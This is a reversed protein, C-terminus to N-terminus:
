EVVPYRLAARLYVVNQSAEADVQRYLVRTYQYAAEVDINKTAAYRLAPRVRVTREDIAQGSFQGAESRNVYYGTSFLGTFEYSGRHALDLTVATREAAGGRGAAVTVDRYFSLNGTDREGKYALAVKAIWGTNNSTDTGRALTFFGPAVEVPRLIDLESRTYRAGVDALISWLEHIERSFGVTVTYNEVDLGTFKSRAYGLNARGKTNPFSQGLDHIFGLGVTHQESDLNAQSKYDLREYGYSLGAGTKESLAYDASVSYIQRDSRNGAVLGTAEIDRDPLGERRFSADGSLGFTNSFRYGLQGRYTQDLTDLGTDASFFRKDVGGDFRANMRETRDSLELRPSVTLIFSDTRAGTTFFVNSNYEDRAALSPTVRFEDGWARPGPLLLSSLLAAAISHLLRSRSM